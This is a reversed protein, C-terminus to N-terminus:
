LIEGGRLIADREDTTMNGANVQRTCFAKIPRLAVALATDDIDYREQAETGQWTTLAIPSIAVQAARVPQTWYAWGDSHSDTWEALREVVLALGLRNPKRAARFREIAVARDYENMFRM